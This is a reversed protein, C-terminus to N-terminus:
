PQKVTVIIPLKEGDDFALNLTFTDGVKLERNLNILMIHYSGPKFELQSNAAVEVRDQKEMKMVGGEMKSLHVEITEAVDGSASVLGVPANKGNDIIFFAGGNDGALAPRAWPDRVALANSRDDPPQTPEPTNGGSCGAGLIVLLALLLITLGKQFRKM